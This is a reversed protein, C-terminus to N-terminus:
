IAAGDGLNMDKKFKEIVEPHKGDKCDKVFKDAAAGDPFTMYALTGNCVEDINIKGGVAGSSQPIFKISNVLPLFDLSLNSNEDLYMGKFDYIYGGHAVVINNSTYLGDAKYEIANAGGVVLEKPENFKVNYNSYTANEMAWVGAQRNKTNKFIEVNITAPGEGGERNPNEKDTTQILVITKILDGSNQAPTHDEVVYGNPGSRYTFEFGLETNSYVAMDNVPEKKTDKLYVFGGLLLVAIIIIIYKKMHINYCILSSPIHYSM